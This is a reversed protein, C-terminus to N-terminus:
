TTSNGDTGTTRSGHGFRSTARARRTWCGSAAWRLGARTNAALVAEAHLGPGFTLPPAELPVIVIARREVATSAVDSRDAGQAAVAILAMACAGATVMSRTSKVDYRAKAAGSAWWKARIRVEGGDHCIVLPGLGGLSREGSGSWGRFWRRFASGLADDFYATIRSLIAKVTQNTLRNDKKRSKTAARIPSRSRRQRGRGADFAAYM